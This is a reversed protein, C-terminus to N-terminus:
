RAASSHTAVHHHPSEADRPRYRGPTVGALERFERTLHAQDAYGADAAIAALPTPTEAVMRQLVAGFRRIRFYRGPTLGVGNRFRAIVHKASYGSHAAVESVREATEAPMENYLACAVAPHLLLPTHLRARLADELTALAADPSCADMLREHLVRASAGWLDELLLHRGTLECAPVGLVASATGARFSAGAVTGAPKPGSRYYSAQPGHVVARTWTQPTVSAAECWPIPDTHGAVVLQACGTPLQHEVADSPRDRRSWWLWEVVADLPPRPRYRVM